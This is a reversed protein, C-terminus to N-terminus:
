FMEICSHFHDHIKGFAEAIAKTDDKDCAAKLETWAAELNDVQKMLDAKVGAHKAPLEAKGLAEIHSKLDPLAQKIADWNEDPLARHQIPAIVDHLAVLEYCMGSLAAEVRSMSEHVALMTALVAASDSKKVAAGFAAVADNMHTRARDFDAAVDAYAEPLKMAQFADNAEKLAPFAEATAKANGSEVPGHMADMVLNQMAEVEKPTAPKETQAFAVATFVTLLLLTTIRM